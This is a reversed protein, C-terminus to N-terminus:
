TPSSTRTSASSSWSCSDSCVVFQNRDFRKLRDSATQMEDILKSGIEKQPSQVNTPLIFNNSVLKSSYFLTMVKQSKGVLMEINISASNIDFYSKNNIDYFLYLPSVFMVVVIVIFVWCIANQVIRAMQQGTRTAMNGAHLQKADHLVFELEKLLTFDSFWLTTKTAVYEFAIRTERVLPLSQYLIYLIKSVQNNFDTIKTIQLLKGAKIQRMCIILYLINLSYFIKSHINEQYNKCPQRNSDSLDEVRDKSECIFKFLGSKDPSKYNSHMPHWLFVSFNAYIWLGMSFLFLYFLPNSKYDNSEPEKKTKKTLLLINKVKTAISKFRHLTTSHMNNSVTADYKSLLTLMYEKTTLGKTDNSKMQDIYYHLIFFTLYIGFNIVTFATVKNEFVFSAIGNKESGLTPFYLLVYVVMSILVLSAMGNYSDGPKRLYQSFNRFFFSNLDAPSVKLLDYRIQKLLRQCNVLFDKKFRQIHSYSKIMQKIMILKFDRTSIMGVDIKKTSGLYINLQEKKKIEEMCLRDFMNEYDDNIALRAMAVGPNEFDIASKNDVGFKKLFETMYMVLLICTIDINTNKFEGFLFTMVVQNNKLYEFMSHTEKFLLFFLYISYLIRWWFSRGSTEEIFITFILIGVVILNLFGGYIVHIAILGLTIMYESNTIIMRTSYKWVVKIKFLNFGMTNVIDDTKINYLVVRMKGFNCNFYGSKQFIMKYNDLLSKSEQEYKITLQSALIDAALVLQDKPKSDQDVRKQVQNRPARRKLAPNLEVVLNNELKKSPGKRGAEAIEDEFLGLNDLYDNSLFKYSRDQYTRGKSVDGERLAVYFNCISKFAKDFHNMNQEFYDELNIEEGKLTFSNRSRVNQYLFLMDQYRYNNSGDIITSYFGNLLSLWARTFFSLYKETLLDSSKSITEIIDKDTYNTDIKINNIDKRELLQLTIEDIIRKRMMEIVRQYIKRENLDYAKCLNAYRIKLDSEIRLKSHIVNYDESSLFDEYVGSVTLLIITLLGGEYPTLFDKASISNFEKFFGFYCMIAVMHYFGIMGWYLWIYVRMVSSLYLNKNKKSEETDSAAVDTSQLTKFNEYVSVCLTMLFLFMFINKWHFILCIILVISHSEISNIYCTKYWYNLFSLKSSHWKGWNIVINRKRQKDFLHFHFSDKKKLKERFLYKTSVWIFIPILAFGLSNIFLWYYCMSYKSGETPLLLQKYTITNATKNDFFRRYFTDKSTPSAFRNHLYSHVSQILLFVLVLTNKQRVDRLFTRKVELSQVLFAVYFGVTFINISSTIPFILPLLGFRTFCYILAELLKCLFYKYKNKYLFLLMDEKSVLETMYYITPKSKESSFLSVIKKIHDPNDDENENRARLGEESSDENGSDEEESSGKKKAEVQEDASNSPSSDESDAGKEGPDEGNSKLAEKKEKARLMKEIIGLDPKEESDDKEFDYLVAIKYACFREEFKDKNEGRRVELLFNYKIEICELLKDLTKDDFTTLNSKCDLYYSTIMYELFLGTIVLQIGFLEGSIEQENTWLNPGIGVFLELNWETVFAPDRKFYNTIIVLSSLILLPFFTLGWFIRNVLFLITEMRVLIQEYYLKNQNLDKKQMKETYESTLKDASENAKRWKAGTLFTLYFYQTRLAFFDMLRMRECLKILSSFLTRMNFLYCVIMFLKFVNMNLHFYKMILGLFLGKFILYTVVFPNTVRNMKSLDSKFHIKLKEPNVSKRQSLVRALTHLGKEKGDSGSVENEGESKEKFQQTAEKIIQAQENLKPFTERTLVALSLLLLPRLFVQTFTTSDHIKSQDIVLITKFLHEQIFPLNQQGFLTPVLNKVSTYKLFFLLYRAFAYLVVLYFSPIWTKYIKSYPHEGKRNWIIIHVLGTLYEVMILFVSLIDRTDTLLILNACIHFIWISYYKFLVKLFDYFSIFSKVFGVENVMELKKQDEEEQMLINATIKRHLKRYYGCSFYLLVFNYIMLSRRKLKDETHEEITVVGVISLFEINYNEYALMYNGIQKLVILFIIIGNFYGWYAKDLSSNWLFILACSLMVLNILSISHLATLVAAVLALYRYFRNFRIRVLDLILLSMGMFKGNSVENKKNISKILNHYFSNDKNKVQEVITMALYVSALAVIFFYNYVTLPSMTIERAAHGNTLKARIIAIFDWFYFPYILLITAWMMFKPSQSVMSFINWVLLSYVMTPFYYEPFNVYFLFWYMSTINLLVQLIFELRILFHM